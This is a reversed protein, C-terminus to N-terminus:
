PPSPSLSPTFVSAPDDIDGGGGLRETEIRGPRQDLDDFNALGCDVRKLTHDIGSDPASLPAFQVRSSIPSWYPGATASGPLIM